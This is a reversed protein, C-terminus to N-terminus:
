YINSLSSNIVAYTSYIPRKPVSAETLKSSNAFLNPNSTIVWPKWSPIRNKGGETHRDTKGCSTELASISRLDGFKAYFHEVIFGPFGNIKPDFPRLDLDRTLMFMALTPRQVSTLARNKYNENEYENTQWVKNWGSLCFFMHSYRRGNGGKRIHIYYVLFAVVSCIFRTSTTWIVIHSTKVCTADLPFHLTVTDPTRGDTWRETQRDRRCVRRSEGPAAHSAALMCKPGVVLLVSM